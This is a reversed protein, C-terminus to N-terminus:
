RRETSLAFFGEEGGTLVTEVFYRIDDMAHDNEKRPADKAGGDQWRYLQFERIADRCSSGIRIEGARLADCVRRIGDLVNNKAPICRYNGHRRICAIFSAASPDVIVAEVARGGTLSCLAEYYEEDTKQKGERKSSYYYEAVRYWVGEREGWLGFSAPNVTGYDCSVYYRSCNGPPECVHETKSFMSYVLGEAAVWKGEIFREYFHGSYLSEYRRVISECLAPNDKMTFHLYLANKQRAKLIWERYFWHHPFDPNCNFWFRSGEVSCRALAQEVFTRPMLAVEDLLVGALTVGQILSASSEDRGGFLYFRNIRSGRSIELFNRSLKQRCCFGLEGLEGLIPEVANRRLSSVTKGCLAFSKNEFAHMAWAVFSLAMCFTKGSRIAGDCIIADRNRYPSQVCWWSLVIRQKETFPAYKM